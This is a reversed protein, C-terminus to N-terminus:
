ANLSSLYGAVVDQVIDQVLSSLYSVVEPPISKPMNSNASSGSSTQSELNTSRATSVKNIINQRQFKPPPQEPKQILRPSKASTSLTKNIQQRPSTAQKKDAEKASSTDVTTVRNNMQDSTQRKKDKETTEYMESDNSKVSKKLDPRQFSRKQMGPPIPVIPSKLSSSNERPHTPKQADVPASSLPTAHAAPLQLPPVQVKTTDSVAKTAAVAVDVNGGLDGKEDIQNSTHHSKHTRDAGNLSSEATRKSSQNMDVKEQKLQKNGIFLGDPTRTFASVEPLVIKNLLVVWVQLKLANLIFECTLILLVQFLENVIVCVEVNELSTVLIDGDLISSINDSTLRMEYRKGSELDIGFIAFRDLFPEKMVVVDLVKGNQVKTYELIIKFPSVDGLEAKRATMPEKVQRKNAANSHRDLIQDDKMERFKSAGDKGRDHEKHRRAIMRQKSSRSIKVQLDSVKYYPQISELRSALRMNEKHIRQAEELRSNFNITGPHMEIHKNNHPDLLHSVMGPGEM